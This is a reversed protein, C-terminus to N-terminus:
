SHDDEHASKQCVPEAAVDELLSWSALTTANAMSLSSLQKADGGITTRLDAVIM